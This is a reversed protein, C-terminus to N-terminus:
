DKGQEVSTLWNAYFRQAMSRWPWPARAGVEDFPFHDILLPDREGHIIENHTRELSEWDEPSVCHYPLCPLEDREHHVYRGADRRYERLLSSPDYEPHGQVLVLQRGEEQRSAVGWGTSESHMVVDYGARELAERSASNWRSHPLLIESELGATLPQNVDVHQSFVGTCKTPLRIRAIDDYITLAAHASLCSLMTSKVHKRSWTLLEVLDGWYLEDEIDTEIPNSGTVIMFDPPELYINTLPLYEEAIRPATQEGRPVGVMTYRRVELANSGSGEELLGVYQRETSDFAGDPMNNVLACTLHSSNEAGDVSSDDHAVAKALRVTM